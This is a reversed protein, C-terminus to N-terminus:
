LDFSGKWNSVWSGPRSSRSPHNPLQRRKRRLCLGLRPQDNPWRPWAWRPTVHECAIHIEVLWSLYCVFHWLETCASTMMGGDWNCNCYIWYFAINKTIDFVSFGHLVLMRHRTIFEVKPWIARPDFQAQEQSAMSTSALTTPIATTSEEQGQSGFLRLIGCCRCGSCLYNWACVCVCVQVRCTHMYAQACSFILHM